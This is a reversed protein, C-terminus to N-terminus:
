PLGLQDWARCLKEGYLVLDAPPEPARMSSRVLGRLMAKLRHSRCSVPKNRHHESFAFGGGSKKTVRHKLWDPHVYM